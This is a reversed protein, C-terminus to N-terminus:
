KHATKLDNGKGRKRETTPLSLHRRNCLYTTLLLQSSISGGRRSKPWTRPTHEEERDGPGIRAHTRADGLYQGSTLKFSHWRENPM